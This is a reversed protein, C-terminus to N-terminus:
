QKESFLPHFCVGDHNGRQNDIGIM